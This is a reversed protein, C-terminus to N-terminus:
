IYNEPSQGWLHTKSLGHTMSLHPVGKQVSGLDNKAWDIYMLINVHDIELKQGFINM